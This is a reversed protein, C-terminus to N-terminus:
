SLKAIARPNSKPPSKRWTKPRSSNATSSTSSEAQKLRRLWWPRRCASTPPFKSFTWSTPWLSRGPRPLSHGHPAPLWVAGQNGSSNQPRRGHRAGHLLRRQQPQGKQFSSKYIIGALPLAQQIEALEEAVKLMTDRSEIVCPGSILFLQDGGLTVPGAPFTTNSM